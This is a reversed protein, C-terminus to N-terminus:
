GLHHGTDVVDILEEGDPSRRLNRAFHLAPDVGPNGYFVDTGAPLEDFASRREANRVSAPGLCLM